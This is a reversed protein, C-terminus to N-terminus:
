PSTMFICVKGDLFRKGGLFFWPDISSSQWKKDVTAAELKLAPGQELADLPPPPEASASDQGQVMKSRRLHVPLGHISRSWQCGQLGSTLSAIVIDNLLQRTWLEVAAQSVDEAKMEPM